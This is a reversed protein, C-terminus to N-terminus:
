YGLQNKRVKLIEAVEELMNSDQLQGSCVTEQIVGKTIIDEMALTVDLSYDPNRLVTMMEGMNIEELM